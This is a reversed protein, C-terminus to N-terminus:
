KFDNEILFKSLRDYWARSLQKLGHLTKNLKFVHNPNEYDEFRFFHKMYVKEKITTNLFISKVDM